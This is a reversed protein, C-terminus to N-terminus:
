LRFAVAGVVEVDDSLTMCGVGRWEDWSVVSDQIHHFGDLPMVFDKRMCSGLRREAEYHANVPRTALILTKYSDDSSDSDSDSDLAAKTPGVRDMINMRSYRSVRQPGAMLLLHVDDNPTLFAPDAWALTCEIKTYDETIRLTHVSINTVVDLYVSEATRTHHGFITYTGDPIAVASCPPVPAARSTDILRFISVEKHGAVAVINHALASLDCTDGAHKM